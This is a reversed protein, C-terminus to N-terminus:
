KENFVGLDTLDFGWDAVEISVPPSIDSDVIAGLAGQGSDKTEDGAEHITSIAPNMTERSQLVRTGPRSAAEDETLMLEASSQSTTPRSAQVIPAEKETETLLLSHLAGALANSTDATSSRSAGEHSSSVRQSGRSAGRTQVGSKRATAARSSVVFGGMQLVWPHHESYAGESYTDFLELADDIM